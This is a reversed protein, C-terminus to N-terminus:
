ERKNKGQIKWAVIQVPTAKEFDWLDVWSIEQTELNKVQVTKRNRQSVDDLAFDVVEFLSLECNPDRSDVGHMKYIDLELATLGRPMILDGITFAM